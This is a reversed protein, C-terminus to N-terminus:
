RGQKASAVRLRAPLRPARPDFEIKEWPDRPNVSILIGKIRAPRVSESDDFEM